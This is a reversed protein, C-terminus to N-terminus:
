TRLEVNSTTPMCMWWAAAGSLRSGQPEISGVSARMLVVAIYQWRGGSGQLERISVFLVAM